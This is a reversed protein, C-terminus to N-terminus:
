KFAYWINVGGNNQAATGIQFGNLTSNISIANSLAATAFVGNSGIVQNNTLLANAFYISGAAGNSVQIMSVHTPVFGLVESVIAPAATNSITGKAYVPGGFEFPVMSM